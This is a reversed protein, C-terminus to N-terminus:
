KMAIGANANAFALDSMRRRPQSEGCRLARMLSALRLSTTLLLRASALDIEHRDPTSGGLIM